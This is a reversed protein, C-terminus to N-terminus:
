LKGKFESDFWTLASLPCDFWKINPNRKFWTIQKKALDKDSKIFKQKAVDLTEDGLIYDKFARYIGGTMANSEWDYLKACQKIEEIVGMNIMKELRSIIRDNLKEKGPNIGILVTSKSIDNKSVQAEGKELTRILYRKNKFNEPLKLQTKIILQHLEKVTKQELKKRLTLNQAVFSFNYIVSDIYLGSGGVIIPLKGRLSIDKVMNDAYKKFDAVTFNEGPGVLDFGWHVVGSQEKKDPKATGIDMKKYVARSDASIVEGNYKKAIKIALSTKGSATPGIIVLLDIKSAVM